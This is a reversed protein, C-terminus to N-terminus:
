VRDENVSAYNTILDLGDYSSEIGIFPSTLVPYGVHYHNHCPVTANTPEVTKTPATAKGNAYAGAWVVSGAVLVSFLLLNKKM